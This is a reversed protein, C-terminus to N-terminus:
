VTKVIKTANIVNRVSFTLITDKEVNKSVNEKKLTIILKVNEVLIMLKVFLVSM